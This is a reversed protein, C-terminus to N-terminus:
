GFCGIRCSAMTFGAMKGVTKKKPPAATSRPQRFTHGCTGGNHFTSPIKFAAPRLRTCLLMPRPVIRFLRERDVSAFPVNGPSVFALVSGLQLGHEESATDDTILRSTM